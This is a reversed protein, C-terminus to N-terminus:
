SSLCTVAVYLSKWMTHSCLDAISRYQQFLIKLPTESCCQNLALTSRAVDFEFSWKSPNSQKLSQNWLKMKPSKKLPISGKAAILASVGATANTGM